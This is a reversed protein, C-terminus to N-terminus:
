EQERAAAPERASVQVPHRLLDPSHPVQGSTPGKSPLSHLSLDTPCLAGDCFGLSSSRGGSGGCQPRSCMALFPSGGGGDSGCVSGLQM